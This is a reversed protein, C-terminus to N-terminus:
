RGGRQPPEPTEKVFEKVEVRDAFRVKGPKKKNANDPSDEVAANRENIKVRMMAVKAIDINGCDLAVRPDAGNDIFRRIPQEGHVLYRRGEIFRQLEETAERNYKDDFNRNKRFEAIDQKLKHSKAMQHIDAKEHGTAAAPDAGADLFRHINEEIQNYNRFTIDANVEDGALYENLEQTANANFKKVTKAKEAKVAAEYEKDAIGEVLKLNDIASKALRKNQLELAKLDEANQLEILRKEFGVGFKYIFAGLAAGAVVSVCAAIAIATVPLGPGFAMVTLGVATAVTCFGLAAGLVGYACKNKFSVSVEKEGLEIAKEVGDILRNVMGSLAKRKVNLKDLDRNQNLRERKTALFVSLESIDGIDKGEAIDDLMFEAMEEISKTMVSTNHVKNIVKLLGEIKDGDFLHDKLTSREKVTKAKHIVYLGIELDTRGGIDIDGLLQRQEEQNKLERVKKGLEEVKKRDAEELEQLNTATKLAEVLMKGVEKKFTNKAILEQAPDGDATRLDAELRTAAAVFRQEFKSVVKNPSGKM